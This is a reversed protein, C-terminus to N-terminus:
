FNLEYVIKLGYLTLNEDIEMIENKKGLVISALGGTAIVTSNSRMENKLRTLLGEVMSYYGNILGSQICEVTNKGILNKPRTLEVKPLKSTKAFLANSSIEIGPVILGGLFDGEKSICDFTTATGFDIVIVDSKIKEYAAAANVIRDSGLEGPNDIKFNINTKFSSDVFRAALKFSSKFVDELCSNLSPVVSSIILGSISKLEIKEKKFCSSFLKFYGEASKNKDTHIRSKLILNNKKFIGFVINSNGVDLALLM